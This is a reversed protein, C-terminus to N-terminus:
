AILEFDVDVRRYISAARRDCSVLTAGSARATAAILADYTAGGTIGSGPADEVFAKIEPADLALWPQPFRRALFEVVPEPPMRMPAPLRTLVSYAEALAHAPIAEVGALADAAADHAEHWAALAAV